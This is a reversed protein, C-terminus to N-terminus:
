ATLTKLKNYKESSRIMKELHLVVKLREKYDNIPNAMNYVYLVKPIFRSHKGSMELMPFM